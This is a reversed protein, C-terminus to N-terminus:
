QGSSFIRFGFSLEDFCLEDKIVTCVSPLNRQSVLTLIRAYEQPINFTKQKRTVKLLNQKMLPHMLPPGHNGICSYLFNQASEQMYLSLNSFMAKPDFSTAVASYSLSTVFYPSKTFFRISISM